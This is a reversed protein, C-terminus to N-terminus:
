TIQPPVLSKKGDYRRVQESKSVIEEIENLVAEYDDDDTGTTNDEHHLIVFSEFKDVGFDYKIHYATYGKHSVEPTVTCESDRSLELLRYIVKDLDANLLKSM